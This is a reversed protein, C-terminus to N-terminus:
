NTNDTMIKNGHYTENLNTNISGGLVASANSVSKIKKRLWAVPLFACCLVVVAIGALKWGNYLLVFIVSHLTRKLLM